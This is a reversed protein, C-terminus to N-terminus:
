IKKSLRRVQLNTEHSERNRKATIPIPTGNVCAIAVNYGLGSKGKGIVRPFQM